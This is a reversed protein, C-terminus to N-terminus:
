KAVSLSARPFCTVWTTLSIGPEIRPITSSVREDHGMGAAHRCGGHILHVAFGASIGSQRDVGPEHISRATAVRLSEQDAAGLVDKKGAFVVLEESLPQTIVFNTM